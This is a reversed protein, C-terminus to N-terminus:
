RDIRTAMVFAETRQRLTGIGAGMTWTATKKPRRCVCNPMAGQRGVTGFVAISTAFHRLSRDQQWGPAAPTLVVLLPLVDLPVCRMSPRRRLRDAQIEGLM